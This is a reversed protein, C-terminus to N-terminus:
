LSPFIVKAVWPANHLNMNMVFRIENATSLNFESNLSSQHNISDFNLVGLLQTSSCQEPKEPKTVSFYSLNQALKWM